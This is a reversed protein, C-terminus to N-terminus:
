ILNKWKMIKWWNSIMFEHKKYSRKIWYIAKCALKALGFIFMFWCKWWLSKLTNLVQTQLLNQFNNVKVEIWIYTDWFFFIMQFFKMLLKDIKNKIKENWIKKSMQTYGSNNQVSKSVLERKIFTKWLIKKRKGWQCFLYRMQDLGWRPSLIIKMIKWFDNVQNVVMQKRTVNKVSNGRQYYLKYFIGLLKMWCMWHWSLLMLRVICVNKGM